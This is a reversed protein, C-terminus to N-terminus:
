LPSKPLARPLARTNMPNLDSVIKSGVKKFVNKWTTKTAAVPELKVGITHLTPVYEKGFSGFSGGGGGGGGGGTFGIQKSFGRSGGGVAGPVMSYKKQKIATQIGGMGTLKTAIKKTVAKGTKLGASTVSVSAVAKSVADKLKDPVNVNNNRIGTPGVIPMPVKKLKPVDAMDTGFYKVHASETFSIMRKLSTRETSLEFSYKNLKSSINNSSKVDTDLQITLYSFDSNISAVRSSVDNLINRYSTLKNKDVKIYPM